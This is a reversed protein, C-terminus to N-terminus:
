DDLWRAAWHFHLYMQMYQIICHVVLVLIAISVCVKSNEQDTPSM